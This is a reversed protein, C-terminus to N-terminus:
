RRGVEKLSVSSLPSVSSQLGFVSSKPLYHVTDDPLPDGECLYIRGGGNSRVFARRGTRAWRDAELRHWQDNTVAKGYQSPAALPDEPM